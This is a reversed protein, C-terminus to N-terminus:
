ITATRKEFLDRKDLIYRQSINTYVGTIVQSSNDGMMRQVSVVDVGALIMETCFTHRFRYLNNESKNLGAKRLLRNYRQAYDEYIRLNGNKGTFIFETTGNQAKNQMYTSDAEEQAKLKMIIGLLEDSVPLTRKQFGSKKGARENKLEKIVPVFHTTRKLEKTDYTAEKGLAKTISITREEFDIDSWKLALAESPRCGTAHLIRVWCYIMFDEKVAEYIARIEEDTYITTEPKVPAKSKPKKLNVMYNKKILPHDLAENSYYRIFRGLLDYVKNIKSQGFPQPKGKGKGKVYKADVLQNLFDELVAYDIEYMKLQGLKGVIFKGANVYDGFTRSKVEKKISNLFKDFCEAVTVDQEPLYTSIGLDAATGDKVIRTNACIPSVEEAQQRIYERYADWVEMQTKGSIIKRKRKGREDKGLSLAICWQKKQEDFYPIHEKKKMFNWEKESIDEVLISHPVNSRQKGSFDVLREENQLSAPELGLLKHLDGPRIFQKKSGIALLDGCDILDRVDMERVGLIKAAKELTYLNKLEM